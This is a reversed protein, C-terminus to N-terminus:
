QHSKRANETRCTYLQFCGFRASYRVSSNKRIRDALQISDIQADIDCSRDLHRISNSAVNSQEALDSRFLAAFTRLAVVDISVPPINNLYVFCNHPMPYADPILLYSRNPSPHDVFIVMPFRLQRSLVQCRALSDTCRAMELLVVMAEMVVKATKETKSGLKREPLALELVVLVMMSASLGM